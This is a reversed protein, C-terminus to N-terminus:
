NRMGVPSLNGIAPGNIVKGLPEFRSGHCPCDWSGEVGNWCVIGGLHPCVASLEHVHGTPDRYIAVKSLGRRAIAGRGPAIDEASTAEGRSTYDRIYQVAVNLNEELFTGVAGIAKRAPDYLSKWPNERGLVLDSLILGAITGHTMGMGSDGTAIFVNDHDLPNAGIFALGDITEVIQGSWRYEISQVMPFCKRTWTELAAHRKAPDHDRAQGTKHDEGGVVLIAHRSGGDETLRVYHYPDAMDWYLGKPVSGRPLRAAIAYTRYSAQKTHVKVRNNVPSNTAVVIASARIRVGGSTEVYAEAGGEIRSAHTDPHIRGGDRVIAEALCALYRLPHFQAQHPFRLCPGDDLSPIPTQRLREVDACGARVAAEYERELLQTDQGPALFLYGDLREFGCDVHESAVIDEICDIAAAHSEQALRSGGIGHYREIVQFRDDIVNSLHATTRCTERGGIPGDDIVVVARGARALMYATTLGAIGAGVICVDTRLNETLAPGPVRDSTAMWLSTSKSPSGEM